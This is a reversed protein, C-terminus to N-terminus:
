ASFMAVLGTLGGCATFGINGETLVNFLM